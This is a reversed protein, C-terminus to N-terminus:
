QMFRSQAVFNGPGMRELVSNPFSLPIWESKTRRHEKTMRIEPKTM